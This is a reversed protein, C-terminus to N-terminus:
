PKRAAGGWVGIDAGSVPGAPHWWQPQVVGPELLDLGDFLRTVQGQDRMTGRTPGLRANVRRAMEAVADPRIDSAPHSLALYSGAPVAAMLTAIIAQPDETDPILHLIAMLTVAVPRSFDLTQAARDLIERTGSERSPPGANGIAAFRAVQGGARGDPGTGTRRAIPACGSTTM